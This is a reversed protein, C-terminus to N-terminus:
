KRMEKRHRDALELDPGPKTAAGIAFETWGLGRLHEAVRTRDKRKM